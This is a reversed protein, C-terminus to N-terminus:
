EACTSCEGPKLGCSEAPKEEIFNFIFGTGTCGEEEPIFFDTQESVMEVGETDITSKDAFDQVVMMRYYTTVLSSDLWKQFWEMDVKQENWVNFSICHALGTSEMMKQWADALKFYTDFGVSQATEVNPPYQYEIVGFTDSDRATVKTEPHCIPPSIEPSCTHGKYDTHNYSVTACPAITFAREMGYNRAVNAASQYAESLRQVISQVKNSFMSINKDESHYKYLCEAFEKYAVNYRALFNALGIVGMGVQKDERNNLSMRGESPNNILGHLQCLTRMTVNASSVLNSLTCNGLNLHMLLCTARSKFLIEMCIQTFLRGEWIDDPNPPYNVLGKTPHEWRKKSLWVLGADVAYLIQDLHPHHIIYDPSAPDDSIYVARKLWPIDSNDVSIFELIDPHFADLYVSVAGNRFIGGRRLTENLKSYISLFSVPGSAILGNGNNHNKPRLKSLDLAVGAADRIGDSVYLWSYEIGSMGEMSDEVSLMTCSVPYRKTSDPEDLWAKIRGVAAIRDNSQIRKVISNKLQRQKKNM